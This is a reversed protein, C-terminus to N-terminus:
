PARGYNSPTAPPAADQKHRSVQLNLVEAEETVILAWEPHCWFRDSMDRLVGGSLRIAESRVQDMGTLDSGETDPQESGDYVHFFYRPL